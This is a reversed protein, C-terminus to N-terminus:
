DKPIIRRALLGTAVALVGAVLAIGGLGGTEPLTTSAAAPAAAPAATASASASASATATATAPAAAPTPVDPPAEPVPGGVNPSVDDFIDDVDTGDGFNVADDATGAPSDGDDGAPPNEAPPAPDIIVTPNDNDGPYQGATPTDDPPVQALAAMPVLLVALVVTAAVFANRLLEGRRVERGVM